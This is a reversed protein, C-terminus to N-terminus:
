KMVLTILHNAEGEPQHFAFPLAAGLSHYVRRFDAFLQLDGIVDDIAPIHKGCFDDVVENGAVFGSDGGQGAGLAIAGNFKARHEGIGLGFPPAIADGGAVIGANLVVFPAIAVLEEAGEVEVFVLGIEEVVEGLFHQGMGEERQPFDGFCFGATEGVLVVEGGGFFGFALVKAQNFGVAGHLGEEILVDGGFLPFDDGGVAPYQSGMAADVVVGDALAFAEAYGGGVGEIHHFEIGDHIADDDTATFLGGLRFAGDGAEVPDGDGSRAGGQATFTPYAVAGGGDGHRHDGELFTPDFEDKIFRLKPNGGAM